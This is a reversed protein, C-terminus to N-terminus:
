GDVSGGSLADDIIGDLLELADFLRPGARLALDPNLDYIRGGEVASLRGWGPRRAIDEIGEADLDEPLMMAIVVIDPDLEVVAEMSLSPWQDVSNANMLSVANVAGATSILDDVFHGEGAAFVPDMGVVLLVSPLGQRIRREHNGEAVAVVRAELREALAAADDDVGLCRGVERIMEIVDPIGVPDWAIVPIGLRQLSDIVDRPTGRETLVLEPQQDIIAEISPDVLGGVSPLELVEPPYTSFHIRGVIRDGAGMAFIAETIGTSLSIVRMPPSELVVQQDLADTFVRPWDDESSVAEPQPATVPQEQRPCGATLAIVLLVPTLRLMAKM